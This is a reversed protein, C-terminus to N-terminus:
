PLEMIGAAEAGDCTTRLREADRRRVFQLAEEARRSWEGVATLWKPRGDSLDVIVLPKVKQPTPPPRNVEVDICACCKFQRHGTAPQFDHTAPAGCRCHRRQEGSVTLAHYHDTL